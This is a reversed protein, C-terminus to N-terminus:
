ASKRVIQAPTQGMFYKLSRTLHPQDAYGARDVTDLISVGQELLAVAQQAREIQQITSQPLGTAQLFHHRVTRSPVKTPQNQLAANVVPDCVILGERALWKAFTEVNEYDPLQWSDGHLWFSKRAAEPLTIKGDVLNRAAFDPMFMGLKLKIVLWEVGEDHSKTTARSMPGAISFQVSGNERLLLMHWRSEAPCNPFCDVGARGRWVSELYPSDSLRGENTFTM